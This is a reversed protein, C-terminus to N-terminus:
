VDKKEEGQQKQISKLVKELFGELSAEYIKTNVQIYIVPKNQITFVKIQKFDIKTNVLVNRHQRAIVKRLRREETYRGILFADVAILCVLLIVITM